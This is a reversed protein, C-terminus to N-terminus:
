EELRAAAARAADSGLDAAQGYFQRAMTPNPAPFPSRDAAFTEPDVMQAALTLADIRLDADRTADRGIELLGGFAGELNDADGTDILARLDSLPDAAAVAEAGIGGQTVSPGTGGGQPGLLFFAAAAAVGVAVVAGGILLGRKGGGGTSPNTAAQVAAETKESRAAIPAADIEALGAEFLPTIPSPREEPDLKTLTSLVRHLAPGTKDIPIELDARRHAGAQPGKGEGPVPLGFIKMLVLGLAYADTKPSVEAASQGLQEPASFSFKGAFDGGLISKETGFTDSALGFDILKAKQIDDGPVFINDPAIDRHVAGVGAVADLGAALRRGLRLTDRASLRAGRGVFYSLPHGDLLEMVLYLRGQADQLTTEYRVVAEHQITRLLNAERKFLDTARKNQAFSASIVKIAVAHDSATNYGAFTAGMGGEGLLRDIRYTNQIVDGPKLSDSIQNM